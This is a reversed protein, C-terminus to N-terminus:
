ASKKANMHTQVAILIEDADEGDSLLESLITEIEMRHTDDAEALSSLFHIKGDIQIKSLDEAFLIVETFNGVTNQLIALYHDALQKTIDEDKEEATMSGFELKALSQMLEKLPDM